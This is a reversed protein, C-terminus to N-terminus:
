YIYPSKFVEASSLHLLVANCVASGTICETVGRTVCGTVCGTAGRTVCGQLVMASVPVVSTAIMAKRAKTPFTSIM